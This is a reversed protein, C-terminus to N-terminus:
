PSETRAAVTVPMDERVRLLNTTIVLDGPNLGAVIQAREATRYGVEVPASRARGHDVVFVRRGEIGPIIAITPVLLAQEVRLPLEVNAASGPVLTTPGDIVGRVLLSRTVADVSPEIAAVKGSYTEARGEVRFRFSGGSSVVGAYREPLTFDLKLSSTDQLTSLVTSPSVWAGESVRRLGLTGAFPARIATKALTVRLAQREAGVEDVRARALDLEQQNSLGEASLQVTRDLTARALRDQVDLKAWDAQLDAADLEFLVDGKAVRKGEEAHVKLLRRSLESVLEVAERGLLTGTATVQVELPEPRVAHVDVAIAPSPPNASGHPAASPGSAAGAQSLALAGPQAANSVVGNGRWLWSGGAFIGLAAAAALLVKYIM